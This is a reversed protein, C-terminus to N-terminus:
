CLPGTNGSMLKRLGQIMAKCETPEIICAVFGMTKATCHRWQSGSEHNPDSFILRM